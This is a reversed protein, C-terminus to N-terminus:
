HTPFLQQLKKLSRKWLESHWYYEDNSFYGAHSFCLTSRSFDGYLRIMVSSEPLLASGDCARSKRWSFFMKGRRCVRYSGTISLDLGDAAYHDLRYFSDTQSAVTRCDSHACPLSLWTEIYEPLTLADFIRRRDAHVNMQLAIRQEKFSARPKTSRTRTLTTEPTLYATASM